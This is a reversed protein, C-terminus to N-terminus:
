KQGALELMLDYLERAGRHAHAELWDGIALPETVTRWKEMDEESLYHVQLGHEDIINMGEQYARDYQRGGALSLREGTLSAILEQDEPALSNWTDLNMVVVQAGGGHNTITVHQVVDYFHFTAVASVTISVGEIVGRELADYIDPAPMGLPVAGFAELAAFEMSGLARIRLGELDGLTRVPQERTFIARPDNSWIGLLKVDAYEQQMGEHQQYLNWLVWSAQEANEWFLFPVEIVETLPFRGPTYSPLTWAVDLVGSVVADYLESAGALAGGPFFRVRIRGDSREELEEALPILVNVHIHHQPSFPHGWVLEVTRQAM